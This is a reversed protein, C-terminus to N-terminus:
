LLDVLGPLWPLFLLVIGVNALWWGPRTIPRPTLSGPIMALYLWHALVCFTTFYHTYFGLSMLLGYM